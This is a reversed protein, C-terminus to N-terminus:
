IQEVLDPMQPEEAFRKGQNPSLHRTRAIQRPLLSSCGGYKFHKQQPLQWKLGIFRLGRQWERAISSGVVNVVGMVEGGKLKVEKVAGLTDSTEGSQTVALLTIPDIVPNRHRSRRAIEARAPIRALKEIAIAGVQCAYYATGDWCVWEQM